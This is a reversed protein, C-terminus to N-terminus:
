GALAPWQEGADIYQQLTFSPHFEIHGLDNEGGEGIHKDMDWNGGWRCGFAMAVFGFKLYRGLRDDVQYVGDVFVGFDAALGFQHWGVSIKSAGQKRLMKQRERNRLTELIVINIGLKGRCVSLIDIVIPRFRADLLMIDKRRM